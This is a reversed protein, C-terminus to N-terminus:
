AQTSPSSNTKVARSLMGRQLKGQWGVVIFGGPSFLNTHAIGQKRVVYFSGNEKCADGAPLPFIEPSFSTRWLSKKLRDLYLCM